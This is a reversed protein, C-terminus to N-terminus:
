DCVHSIGDFLSTVRQPQRHDTLIFCYYNTWIIMFIKNCVFAQDCLVYLIHVFVGFFFLLPRFDNKVIHIFLLNGHKIISLNITFCLSMHNKGMAVITHSMVTFVGFLKQQNFKKKHFCKWHIFMVDSFFFILSFDWLLWKLLNPWRQSIVSYKLDM